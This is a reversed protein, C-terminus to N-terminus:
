GPCATVGRHAGGPEQSQWEAPRLRNLVDGADQPLRLRRHGPRGAPVVVLVDIVGHVLLLILRKILPSHPGADSARGGPMMHGEAAQRGANRRAAAAWSEQRRRERDKAARPKLTRLALEISPRHPTRSKRSKFTIHFPLAVIAGQVPSCKCGLLHLSPHAQLRLRETM